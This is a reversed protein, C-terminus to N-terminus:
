ILVLDASVALEGMQKFHKEEKHKFSDKTVKGPFPFYASEYEIIALSIQKYEDIIENPIESENDYQCIQRLLIDSNEQYIGFRKLNKIIM